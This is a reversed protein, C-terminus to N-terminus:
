GLTLRCRGVEQPTSKQCWTAIVITGGPKLVRVMEEVYRGKDKSRVFLARWTM